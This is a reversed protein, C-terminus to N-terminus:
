RASPQRRLIRRRPWHVMLAAAVGAVHSWPATRIEPQSFRAFLSQGAQSEVVIKLALLVLVGWWFWPDPVKRALQEFALLALVGAALGSLGAYRMLSPDAVYLTTGIVLPGIVLFWRAPGPSIRELWVGAALFVVLNWVLHSVSFHVWSGTWIRWWDGGRIALRDFILREELPTSAYVVLALAAALLTAWPFGARATPPKM